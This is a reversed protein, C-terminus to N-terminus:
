KLSFSNPKFCTCQVVKKYARESRVRILPEISSRDFLKDTTRDINKKLLVLNELPTQVIKIIMLTSLQCTFNLYFKVSIRKKIAFNLHNNKRNIKKLNKQKNRPAQTAIYYCKRLTQRGNSHKIRRLDICVHPLRICDTTDKYYCLYSNNLM